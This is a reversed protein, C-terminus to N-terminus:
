SSIVASVGEVIRAPLASRIEDRDFTNYCQYLESVVGCLDLVNESGSRVGITSLRFVTDGGKVALRRAIEPYVPWRLHRGLYDEVDTPAAVTDPIFGARVAIMLALQTLVSIRPHNTIYMFPEGLCRCEEIFPAIDFGAAGFTKVMFERAIDYADFYGIKSYTFANFLKQARAVSVGLAFASAVLASHVEGLPGKLFRGRLALYVCDPQFGTFIVPPVFIVSKHNGISNTIVSEVVSNPGRARSVILDTGRAQSVGLDATRIEEAISAADRNINPGLHWAKIESNACLKMLADRLGTVQCTGVIAIRPGKSHESM